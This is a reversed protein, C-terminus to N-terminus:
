LDSGDAQKDEFNLVTVIIPRLHISLFLVALCSVCLPDYRGNIPVPGATTVESLAALGAM